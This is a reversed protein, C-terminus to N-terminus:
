PYGEAEYNIGPFDAEDPGLVATAEGNRQLEALLFATTFHKILEHADHRDWVADACFEDVAIRAYWRISECPGTFIMHEADHLAIQAKRASSVHDYTPQTGWQYPTDSDSTGGIALVPATIAALGAQDFLYADGALSVIADVRTEGWAPWLGAPLPEIGALEAMDGLRPLLMDCLWAHSDEAQWAAACLAQFGRSDIRAGAAALATYGGLSHGVVAVRQADILQEWAGAAGAQEDVVALLTRVDPPRQIMAQWIAGPNLREQHEPAIVVFGYTALHEALWAYSSGGLAFGPSLIVLPYPGNNLDYGAEPFAQGTFSAITLSSFLGPLKIEYAYTIEQPGRGDTIAPYWITLPSPRSAAREARAL